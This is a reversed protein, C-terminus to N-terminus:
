WMIAFIFIQFAFTKKCIIEPTESRENQIDMCNYLELFRTDAAAFTEEAFSVVAFVITREKKTTKLEALLNSYNLLYHEM